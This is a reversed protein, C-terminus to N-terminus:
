GKMPALLKHKLSPIGEVVRRIPGGSFTTQISPQLPLSVCSSGWDRFLDFPRWLERYLFLLLTLLSNAKNLPFKLVASEWLQSVSRSWGGHRINYTLGFEFKSSKLHRDFEIFILPFLPKKENGNLEVCSGFIRRHKFQSQAWLDNERSTM